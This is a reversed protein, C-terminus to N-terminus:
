KQTTLTQAAIEAKALQKGGHYGVVFVGAALILGAFLLKMAKISTM